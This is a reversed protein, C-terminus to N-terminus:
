SRGVYFRKWLFYVPVGLAVIFIGWLSDLPQKAATVVVIWAMSLIFIAPLVPYGFVVYSLAGEDRADKSRIRFLGAVILGAFVVMPVTVYDLLQDFTGTVALFSAWVAHMWIAKGPSAFVPHVNGASELFLGDKAMAYLVRPATLITASLCGLVSVAVLAGVIKGIRENFLVSSAATVIRGDGGQVTVPIAYIYLAALAVYVLLVLGMGMFVSVPITRRPDKVEGAVYAMADWGSYTYMVPIM